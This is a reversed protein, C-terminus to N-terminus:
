SLVERFDVMNRESRRACSFHESQWLTETFDIIVMWPADSVNTLRKLLNWMHYREHSKPKGYVFTDRWWKDNPSNRILVDIYRPGVSLKKIEVLDDWYLAIGAGKGVVDHLMCNKLGLM